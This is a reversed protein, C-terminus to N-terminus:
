FLHDPTHFLFVALFTMISLEKDIRLLLAVCGPVSTREFILM